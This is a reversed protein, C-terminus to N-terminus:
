IIARGPIILKDKVNICNVNDINNIRAIEDITTYYRKAIKWLTDGPQVVYITVSAKKKPVNEESMLVDILFDKETVYNVRADVGVVAKVAITSAEVSAEINEITAKVVAQMDIKAGEVDVSSSFPLEECMVKLKSEEAETAFLVNFKVIGEVVVKNEVIKKDTVMVEGDSMIIESPKVDPEINDKVIIESHNTGQLVNLNYSKKVMDMVVRPSYADEIMDIHEKYQIRVTANTIAEVDVIRSEGLDDDKIDYDVNEVRFDGFASMSADVDDIEVDKSLYVDDELCVLTREGNGRYLMKVNAYATIQARGDMLKVEKKHLNVDCKLVKGIQPKDMPVRIQTKIVLDTDTDGLIKDIVAPYKLTQLDDERAIAKVVEFSYNKFVASKIKIIGSIGVKRENILNSDMHEVYCEADCLMKHEAAPIDVYNSFKDSYTVNYVGMGEEEKALYIVNYVVQGEVYVKDQMTEKATISPKVDVMLIEVVDPHTDPILYEGKVVTDAFNEELLQEYEINEKILEVAAM